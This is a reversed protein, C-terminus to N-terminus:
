DCLAFGPFFDSELFTGWDLKNPRWCSHHLCCGSAVKTFDAALKLQSLRCASHCTQDGSCYLGNTPMFTAFCRCSVTQGPHSSPHIVGSSLTAALLLLILSPLTLDNWFAICCRADSVCSRFQDLTKPAISYTSFRYSNLFKQPLICCIAVFSYSAPM